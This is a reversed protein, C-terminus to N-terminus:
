KGNWMCTVLNHGPQISPTTSSSLHAKTSATTTIGTKLDAETDPLTYAGVTKTAAEAM